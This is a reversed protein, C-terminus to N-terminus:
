TTPNYPLNIRICTGNERQHASITGGHDSIISRVIALGLGTGTAKKSFYPEFLRATEEADIGAGNDQIEITIQNKNSDMSTIFYLIEVHGQYPTNPNNQKEASIELLKQTHTQIADAANNLINFLARHLAKKDLLIDPIPSKETLQWDISPHSTTFLNVIEQLIAVPNATELCATPLAAFTSFDTVMTQMRSVEKIILETCQTFVPDSITHAFKKQLRQTSLKIPTLPNKIEHAIRQAVERWAALRQEQSLETIDEIVLIISGTLYASNKTSSAPNKQEWESFFESSEADLNRTEKMFVPLAVAKILIKLYQEERVLETEREWMKRPNKQIFDYMESIMTHNKESLFMSVPLSEYQEARIRFIDCAAKNITLLTGKEDLTAIGTTIHELIAEIYQNREILMENKEEILWNMKKLRDQSHRMENTMSNFSDVLQGLEDQGKGTVQFDWDGEAIHKTGQALALIPLTLERSIKFALWVAAFLVILSLLGLILSFSLKLPQKLNKLETYEKFGESIKDLQTLLGKGISEAAIIYVGQHQPVPLAVIVYDGMADAWLLSEFNSEDIQQFNISHRISEWVNNFNDNAIWIKETYTIKSEPAPTEQKEMVGLLTLQNEKKHKSILATWTNEPSEVLKQSLIETTLKLRSSAANYFSQGVDLAAQMSNEVQGTFWYNVSTTLIKNASLFMILIPVFSISFFALVLRTKLRSGFIKRRREVLLRVVNRAVLFLVVLMLIANVNVLVFFTWSDTGFYDLQGWTVLIIVLLLLAASIIELQHKRNKLQASNSEQQADNATNLEYEQTTKDSFPSTNSDFDSPTASFNEQNEKKVILTQESSTEKTTKEENNQINRKRFINKFDMFNKM